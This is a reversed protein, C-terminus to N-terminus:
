HGQRRYEFAIGQRLLDNLANKQRLNRAIQQESNTFEPMPTFFSLSQRFNKWFEALDNLQKPM